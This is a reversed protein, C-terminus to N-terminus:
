GLGSQTVVDDVIDAVQEVSIGPGGYVNVTRGAVVQQCQVQFPPTDQERSQTQWQGFCVSAGQRSYEGVTDQNASLEPPVPPGAQLFLGSEGDYITVGVRLQQQSTTYIGVATDKGFAETLVETSYGEVEEFLAALDSPVDHYRVLAGDLLTEPLLEAVPVDDVKQGEDDAPAEIGDGEVEPLGVAFGFVGALLVVGLAAGVLTSRLPM